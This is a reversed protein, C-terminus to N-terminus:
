YIGPIMRWRVTRQYQVYEEGFVEVLSREEFPIALMLYTTSIVAFSLRTGTMYVVPYHRGSTKYSPPLYVQIDRTNKLQPSRVGPLVRVHGVINGTAPTTGAGSEFM